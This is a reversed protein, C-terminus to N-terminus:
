RLGPYVLPECLWLRYPQQTSTFVQRTRWGSAALITQMAAPAHKYCHETVIPEGPAFTIVQDAIRVLQRTKSVLHMEVRSADANWVARHDFADLDFTAGRTRNLHALVNKDFAATVGHEDDYARLLTAPDRTADAGLLLMRDPGAIRALMALFSRADGPEFNGITSGPFFVLTRRWEHQPPPLEFPQTYDAAITQVDVAPFEARLAAASRQLQEHAVDIAVYMSPRDLARLLKRPKIGEGSGPEIVRAEPGVHHAIQPLHHDLLELEIRTPYYADLTTIQHFLEAGAADYLLRCPLRKRPSQLGHLVDDDQQGPRLPAVDFQIM